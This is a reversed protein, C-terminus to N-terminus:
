APLLDYVPQRCPVFDAPLLTTLFEPLPELVSALDFHLLCM